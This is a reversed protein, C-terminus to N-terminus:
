DSTGVRGRAEALANAIDVQGSHVVEQKDGYDKPAIKSARWRFHHALEKAKALAFQDPADEIGSQAREEWLLATAIRSARARASRDPDSEIWTLLSGVSVGVEEAITTMSKTEAIDACFRDIGYAELKSSASVKKEVPAAVKKKTTM